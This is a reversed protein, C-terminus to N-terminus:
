TNLLLFRYMKVNWELDQAWNQEIEGSKTSEKLQDASSQPPVEDKDSDSSESVKNQNEIDQQAKDVLEAFSERKVM